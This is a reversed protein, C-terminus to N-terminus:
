PTSRQDLRIFRHEVAKHADGCRCMLLDWNSLADKASGDCIMTETGCPATALWEAPADPVHGYKGEPHSEGECAPQFDLQELVDVAFEVDAIANRAIGMDTLTRFTQLIDTM